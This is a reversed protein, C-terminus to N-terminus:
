EYIYDKKRIKKLIWKYRNKATYKVRNLLCKKEMEITKYGTRGWVKKFDLYTSIAVELDNMTDDENCEDIPCLRCKDNLSTNEELKIANIVLCISCSEGGYNEWKSVHKEPNKILDEYRNLTRSVAASLRDEAKANLKIGM